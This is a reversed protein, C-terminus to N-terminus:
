AAVASRYETRAGGVGVGESSGEGGVSIDVSPRLESCTALAQM